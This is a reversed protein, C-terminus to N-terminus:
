RRQQWFLLLDLLRLPLRGTRYLLVPLVPLVPLPLSVSEGHSCSPATAVAAKKKAEEAKLKVAEAESKLTAAAVEPYRTLDLVSCVDGASKVDAATLARTGDMQACESVPRPAARVLWDAVVGM